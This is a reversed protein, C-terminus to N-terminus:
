GERFIKQKMRDTIYVVAVYLILIGGMILYGRMDRYIANIYEGSFLRLYVLIGFPMYKMINIEQLVSNLSMKIQRNTEISDKVYCCMAEIVSVVNGDRRRSIAFLQAFDSIEKVDVRGALDNIAEEISIDLEIKNNIYDFERYVSSKIGYLLEIDTMVKKFSQEISMGTRLYPVVAELAEFFEIKFRHRQNYVYRRKSNKYDYILYPSLCIILFINNFFFYSVVGIKVVGILVVKVLQKKSFEYYNM